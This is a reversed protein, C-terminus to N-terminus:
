GWYGRLQRCFTSGKRFCYYIFFLLNASFHRRIIATKVGALNPPSSPGQRYKLSRDLPVKSHRSEPSFRVHANWETIDALSGFCDNHHPQTVRPTVLMELSKHVGFPAHTFAGSLSLSSCEVVGVPELWGSAQCLSSSIVLMFVTKRTRLRTNDAPSTLLAEDASSSAVM